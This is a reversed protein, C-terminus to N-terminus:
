RGLVAVARPWLAVSLDVCVILVVLTAAQHWAVRWRAARASDGLTDRSFRLLGRITLMAPVVATVALTNTLGGPNPVTIVIGAMLLLWISWPRHRAFYGDLAERRPLPSGRLLLLGTALQLLPVFSFCAFGSLLLGATLRGTAAVSMASGLVLAVLAMRALYHV